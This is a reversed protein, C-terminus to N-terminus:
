RCTATVDCQGVASREVDRRARAPGDVERMVRTRARETRMNVKHRM